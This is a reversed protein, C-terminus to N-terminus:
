INKLISITGPPFLETQNENFTISAFGWDNIGNFVASKTQKINTKIKKGTDFGLKNWMISLTKSNEKALEELTSFEELFMSLLEKRTVETTKFAFDTKIRPNQPKEFLNIGIGLNIYRCIGGLSSLEDLIGAVKGDESWIDNPWRVYFKRNAKKELVNVWAIQAAMILRHNESVPIQNKTIMTFALSGKTTNWVTNNKGHAQTQSDATVIKTGKYSSNTQSEAIKKAEEMTSTTEKFHVSFNEDCALEWPFLSDKIDKSLIYGNKTSDIKYGANELANVAKWVSVRSLGIKDAIEEGSVPKTNNRLIELVSRKTSSKNGM